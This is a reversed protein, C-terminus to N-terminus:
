VAEDSNAPNTRDIQNEPSRSMEGPASNPENRRDSKAVGGAVLQRGVPADRPQTRKTSKPRDGGMLAVPTPWHRPLISGPPNSGFQRTAENRSNRSGAKRSM